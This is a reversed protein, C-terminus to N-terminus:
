FAADIADELRQVGIVDMGEPASRPVNGRPVIARTFGQKQAALIREGSYRVPRVEGAIGSM